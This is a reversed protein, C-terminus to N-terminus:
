APQADVPVQTWRLARRVQEAAQDLREVRRMCTQACPGLEGPAQGTAHLKAVAQNLLVGIKRVLQSAHTLEELAERFGTDPEAAFGRASALTAEAAYAGKALGARSAAEKVTAHEQESLAFRISHPRAEDDHERRRQRPGAGRRAGDDNASDM